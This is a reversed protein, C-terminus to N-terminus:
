HIICSIFFHQYILMIHFLHPPALQKVSGTQWQGMGGSGRKWGLQGTMEAHRTLQVIFEEMANVQVTDQSQTEQYIGAQGHSM